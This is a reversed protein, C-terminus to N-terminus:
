QCFSMCEQMYRNEYEINKELTELEDYTLIRSHYGIRRYYSAQYRADKRYCSTCTVIRGASLAAVCVIEFQPLKEIEYGNNFCFLIYRDGYENILEEDTYNGSLWADRLHEKKYTDFKYVM